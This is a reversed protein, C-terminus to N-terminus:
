ELWKYWISNPGKPVRGFTELLVQGVDGERDHGCILKKCVPLWHLLDEKFSSYIHTADIFVMDVSHPKFFKSAASSYMKMVVLNNFMGVNQKFELYIDQEQAEKHSSNREGDSGLFHDVSIVLSPYGLLLAKTSRGKWSGIEVITSMKQAQEYLWLCEDEDMWGQIIDITSFELM